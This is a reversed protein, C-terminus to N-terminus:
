HSGLEPPCWPAERVRQREAAVRRAIADVVDNFAPAQRLSAFLPSVRLYAADRWGREVADSLAAVAGETDGAAQLLLALELRSSPWPDDHLATRLGAIRERLWAPDVPAEGHLAALTAPLSADPRLAKAEAFAHAAGARDGRSLALEGDLQALEARATGRARSEAVATRADDLRGQAFLFAPWAINGFVNDPSLDFVHRYHTEAQATFGLLEYERAVQVERFRVRAPDGRMDLNARLADALRGQEQYLYAASARSADDDPDLRVAREYGGIAGAIDGLCDRAYGLASWANGSDARVSVARSALKLGERAEDASANYLCTRASRARSAGALADVDDPADRLAREYLALARENNERQGMAAYWRARDLVDRQASAPPKRDHSLFALAVGGVALVGVAAVAPWLFRRHAGGNALPVPPAGLQYGRGRVTRVYRPQRADDGLAQRLLRVRQTVTEENVVAPAWVEAMLEDFGVARDAHELLCALLRFSLGTVDLWRGDREVRQRALDITLDMLRYRTSEM